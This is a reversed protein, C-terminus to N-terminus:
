SAHAIGSSTDKRSLWFHLLLLGIGLDICIDAINFVPWIRFDIFDIVGNYVIRDFLNGLDGGVLFAVGFVSLRSQLLEAKLLWFIILVALGSGILLTRQQQFIGFAAGHNQIYTFYLHPAWIALPKQFPLWHMVLIKVIRDLGFAALALAVFRRDM